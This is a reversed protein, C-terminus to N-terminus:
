AAGGLLVRLDVMPDGAGIASFRLLVPGVRAYVTAEQGNEVAGQIARAEDGFVPAPVETLGLAAARADLFYALAEAAAREDALRYAVAEFRTTGAVTGPGEAVFVRSANERWGWGQFLREAEAPDAFTAAVTSASRAHEEALRLQPPLNAETPLLGFLEPAVVRPEDILRLLPILAVEIVDGTPDGTPAIGTARILVNGRRAYITLEQGNFAPGMVAASQDGFLGLDIPRLQTGSWRARAYYPLAAAAGDATAFRHLSIEVWGVANRPPNDSAYHTYANEQWGWERLLRAAEARDPFGDAIEDLTRGGEEELRFPQDQPLSLTTPLLTSLVLPMGPTRSPLRAPPATGGVIGSEAALILPKALNVPRLQGLSGGVPVCGVDSADLRGDRNTDGPRCDLEAGQTPVGILEGAANLATGGSSGGSIVADTTIWAGDGLGEESAFGSVVGATYILAGDGIAPYALIHVPDGLGLRDSDGVPISPLNRAGAGLPEGNPGGIIRLVALDLARDFTEIRATYAPQPPRKGDSVLVIVEQDDLEIRANPAQAQVAEFEERFAAFDIVHFNTLILGTPAVITGSGVPVPVVQVAGSEQWTLKHAIQVAAPIARERVAPDIQAGIAASPLVSATLLLIALLVSRIPMGM